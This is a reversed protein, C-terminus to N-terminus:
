LLAWNKEDALVNQGFQAGLGALLTEADLGLENAARM